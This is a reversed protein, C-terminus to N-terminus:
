RTFVYAAPVSSYTVRIGDDPSLEFMTSGIYEGSDVGARTTIGGARSMLIESVIGGTVVISEHYGSTNTYSWPSAGVVVETKILERNYVARGQEPEVTVLRLNILDRTITDTGNDVYTGVIVGHRDYVCQTIMNLTAGAEVEINFLASANVRNFRAGTLVKFMSDSAINEFKNQAGSVEVDYGSPLGGANSEFDTGDILNLNGTAGIKLGLVTNGESTGGLLRDGTCEEFYVGTEVGEVIPQNYTNYASPFTGAASHIGYEPTDNVWAGENVSCTFDIENLVCGELKIGALSCGRVNFDFKGHYVHSMYVGHGVTGEIYFRGARIDFVGAGGDMIFANGVGEYRFTVTGLSQLCILNVAWNPSVTYKYIGAPFVICAPNTESNAWDVADQFADSNDANDVSAGFDEINKSPPTYIYPTAAVKRLADPITYGGDILRAAHAYPSSFDSM